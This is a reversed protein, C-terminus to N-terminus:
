LSQVYADYFLCVKKKLSNQCHFRNPFVQSGAITQLLFLHGGTNEHLNSLTGATLIDRGATSIVGSSESDIFHDTIRLRPSTLCRRRQHNGFKPIAAVAAKFSVDPQQRNAKRLQATLFKIDHKLTTPIHYTQTYLNPSRKPRV